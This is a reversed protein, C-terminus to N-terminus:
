DPRARNSGVLDTSERQGSPALSASRWVGCRRTSALRSPARNGVTIARFRTAQSRYQSLRAGRSSERPQELVLDLRGRDRLRVRRDRGARRRDDANGELAAVLFQQAAEGLDGLVAAAVRRVDPDADDLARFLAPIAPTADVDRQGLAHAAYRRALPHEAALEAILRAVRAAGEAAASDEDAQSTGVVSLLAVLVGM